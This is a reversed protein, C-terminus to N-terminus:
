RGGREDSEITELVHAWLGKAHVIAEVADRIVGRGGPTPIVGDVMAQVEPHADSPCLSVGVRRLVPIDFLDDGIYVTHERSVGTEALIEEFFGTKRFHGGKIRHIDFKELRRKLLEVVNGTIVAFDLGATKGMVFGFGDRMSFAKLALGDANFYAQGDTMVGDVDFIVLEIAALRDRLSPDTVAVPM